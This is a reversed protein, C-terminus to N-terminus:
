RGDLFKLFKEGHELVRDSTCTEMGAEVLARIAEREEPDIERLVKKWYPGLLEYGGRRCVSLKGERKKIIYTQGDVVQWGKSREDEAKEGTGKLVTTSQSLTIGNKAFEQRLREVDGNDLDTQYELSVSFLKRQYGSRIVIGANALSNKYRYIGRESVGCLEALEKANYIGPHEHVLQLMDFIRETKAM